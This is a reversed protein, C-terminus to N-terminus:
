IIIKQILKELEAKSMSEPDKELDKVGQEAAKTISILERVSKKITTPTINHERNYEMQIQRRRETEDIAKRM